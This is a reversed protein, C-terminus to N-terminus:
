RWREGEMFLVTSEVVFNQINLMQSILFEYVCASCWMNVHMKVNSNQWFEIRSAALLAGLLLHFLFTLLVSM